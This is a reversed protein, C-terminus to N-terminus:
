ILGSFVPQTNGFFYRGKKFKQESHGAACKQISVEM